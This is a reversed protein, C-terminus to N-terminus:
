SQGESAVRAIERAWAALPIRGLLEQLRGARRGSAAM